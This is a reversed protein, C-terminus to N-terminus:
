IYLKIRASHLSIILLLSIVFPFFHRTQFIISQVIRHPPLLFTPSANVYLICYVFCLLTIFLPILSAHAWQSGPLGPARLSCPTAMSPAGHVDDLMTSLADTIDLTHVGLTTYSALFYFDIDTLDFIRESFYRNHLTLSEVITFLWIEVYLRFFKRSFTCINISSEKERPTALCIKEKTKSSCTPSDICHWKSANLCFHRKVEVNVTNIGPPSTPTFKRRRAFSPIDGNQFLLLLRDDYQVCKVFSHTHTHTHTAEM